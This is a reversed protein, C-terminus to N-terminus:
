CVGSRSRDEQNKWLLRKARQLRRFLAGERSPAIISEAQLCCLSSAFLVALVCPRLTRAPCHLWRYLATAYRSFKCDSGAGCRWLNCSLLLLAGSAMRPEDFTAWAQRAGLATVELVERLRATVASVAAVGAEAEGVSLKEAASPLAQQYLAQAERILPPPLSDHTERQYTELFHLVQRTVRDIQGLM